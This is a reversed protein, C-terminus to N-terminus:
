LVLCKYGGKLIKVNNMKHWFMPVCSLVIDYNKNHYTLQSHVWRTEHNIAVGKLLELNPVNTWSSFNEVRKEDDYKIMFFSVLQQDQSWRIIFTM